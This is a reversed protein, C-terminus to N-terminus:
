TRVKQCIDILNVIKGLFIVVYINLRYRFNGHNMLLEGRFQSKM